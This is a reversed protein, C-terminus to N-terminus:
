AAGVNVVVRGGGNKGDEPRGDVSVPQRCCLLASTDIGLAVRCTVGTDGAVLGGEGGHEADVRCDSGSVGFGAAQGSM